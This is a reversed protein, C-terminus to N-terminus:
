PYVWYKSDSGWGGGYNNATENACIKWSTDGSTPKSNNSGYAICLSLDAMYTSQLFGRRYGIFSVGNKNVSCGVDGRGTSDATISCKGWSFTAQCYDDNCWANGIQGPIEIDLENFFRTYKGNAMYYVEEADAISKAVTKAQTLRAKWVAVQYQPLAIAALIGIILVVVLLEILTFGKKM